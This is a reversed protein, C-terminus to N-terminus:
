GFSYSFRHSHRSYVPVPQGIAVLAFSHYLDCGYSCCDCKCRCCYRWKCYYRNLFTCCLCTVSPWQSAPHAACLALARFWIAFLKGCRNLISRNAESKPWKRKELVNKRLTCIHKEQKSHTHTCQKEFKSM